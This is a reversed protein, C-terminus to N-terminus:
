HLTASWSRHPVLRTKPHSFCNAKRKALGDRELLVDIELQLKRLTTANEASQERLEDLARNASKLARDLDIIQRKSLVDKM